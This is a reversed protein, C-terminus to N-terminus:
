QTKHHRRLNQVWLSHRAQRVRTGVRSSRGVLRLLTIEWPFLLLFHLSVSGLGVNILEWPLSAKTGATDAPGSSSSINQYAANIPEWCLPSRQKLPLYLIARAVKWFFYIIHTHSFHWFFQCCVCLWTYLDRVIPWWRNISPFIFPHQWERQSVYQRSHPAGQVSVM